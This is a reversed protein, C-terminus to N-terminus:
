TFTPTFTYTFTPNIAAITQVPSQLNPSSPATTNCAMNMLLGSVGVAAVLLLVLTKKVSGEKLFPRQTM